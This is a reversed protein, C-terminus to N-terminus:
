DNCAFLYTCHLIFRSSVTLMDTMEQTHLHKTAKKKDKSFMTRCLCWVDLSLYVYGEYAKQELVKLHKPSKQFTENLIATTHM